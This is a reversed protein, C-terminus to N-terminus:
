VEKNRTGFTILFNRANCQSKNPVLNHPNGTIVTKVPKTIFIINLELKVLYLYFFNVKLCNLNFRIVRIGNRETKKNVFIENENWPVFIFNKIKLFHIENVNRTKKPVFIFYFIELFNYKM